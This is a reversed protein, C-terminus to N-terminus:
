RVERNKSLYLMGDRIVAWRLRWELTVRRSKGSDPGNWHMEAYAKGYGGYAVEREM